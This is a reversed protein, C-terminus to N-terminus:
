ARAGSDQFLAQPRAPPRHSSGAPQQSRPSELLAGRSASPTVLPAAQFPWNDRPPARPAARVWHQTTPIAVMPSPYAPEPAFLQGFLSQTRNSNDQTLVDSISESTSPLPSQEWAKGSGPSSTGSMASSFARWSAGAGLHFSSPSRGGPAVTRAASSTTLSIAATNQRNSPSPRPGSGGSLATSLNLSVAEPYHVRPLRAGSSRGTSRHSCRQHSPTRHLFHLGSTGAGSSRRHVQSPGLLDRSHEGSSLGPSPLQSLTWLALCVTIWAQSRLTWSDRHLPSGPNGISGQRTGRSRNSCRTPHLPHSAPRARGKQVGRGAPLQLPPSLMPSTGPGQVRTPATGWSSDQPERNGRGASSGARGEKREEKEQNTEKRKEKQQAPSFPFNSTFLLCSCRSPGGLLWKQLNQSFQTRM